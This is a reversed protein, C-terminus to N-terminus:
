EDCGPISLYGTKENTVDLYLYIYGTKENTRGPISLYGPKENTVDLYLYINQRRM